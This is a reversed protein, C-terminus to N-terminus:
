YEKSVYYNISGSLPTSEKIQAAGAYTNYTYLFSQSSGVTPDGISSLFHVDLVGVVAQIADTIAVSRITDNFDLTNIYNNIAAEVDTTTDELSRQGNYYVDANITMDDWISSRVEITTGIMKITAIFSNFRVLEAETLTSNEKKVKLIIKNGSEEVASGDIIQKTTDEVEYELRNTVENFAIIDGDQYIKAQEALWKATGIINDDAIDNVENYFNELNKEFISQLYCFDWGMIRWSAVKSDKELDDLLDQETDMSPVLANLATQNDKEDIFSAYIQASTRGTINM